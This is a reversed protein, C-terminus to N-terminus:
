TLALALALALVLVLTLTLSLSLSLSLTPTLTLCARAAELTHAHSNVVALRPMQGMRHLLPEHSPHYGAPLHLWGEFTFLHQGPALAQGSVPTTILLEQSTGLLRM